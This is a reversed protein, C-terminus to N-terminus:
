APKADFQILPGIRLARTQDRGPCAPDPNIDDRGVLLAHDRVMGQFDELPPVAASNIRQTPGMFSKSVMGHVALVAIMALKMSRPHSCGAGGGASAVSM